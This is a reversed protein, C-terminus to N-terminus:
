QKSFYRARPCRRSRRSFQCDLTASAVSRVHWTVKAEDRVGRAGRESGAKGSGASPEIRAEALEEDLDTVESVFCLVVALEEHLEACGRM